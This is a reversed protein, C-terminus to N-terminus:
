FQFYLFETATGLGLISLGFLLGIGVAWSSTNNWVIRTAHPEHHLVPSYHCLIQAVNPMFWVIGGAVFLTLIGHFAWPATNNPFMGDFVIWQVPMWTEHAGIANGLLQPLSVGHIGAMSQWLSVATELNEARFVVWAIVIMLFTLTQAFVKGIRTPKIFRTFAYRSYVQHWAHNSALFLGHLAGWLVFTWGAGHWLGGLLMTLFLNLYRRLTGKRNGGLSIYLYDRLFRSLTIHWRRWFDIINVAKYPSNFNLPLRIGLMRGLGIAMDSYGSFDFYLQFTYALAGGWAEFFTLTVGQDAASFVPTAYEALTDALIVKKFLGLIFITFGVLINEPNFIGIVRQAFQPLIEKHHVIPGAILQPFFAVFLCYHLFSYETTEGRYADVLYAIQQFTFFSIGLPLIITGLDYDSRLIHNINELFFNAYKYYGILCLNASIGLGLLVKAQKRNRHGGLTTGIQYNVLISAIIVVVYTPNWWGYFFLSAIVLWSLALRHLGYRGITHFVM